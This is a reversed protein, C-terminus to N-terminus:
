GTLGGDRAPDSAARTPASSRYWQVFRGIGEHISMTPRYSLLRGAKRIDAWTARVDGPQPPMPQVRPTRGTAGGVLAVLEQLSVPSSNGLNVIEFPRELALAGVVGEVIDGIWTYDRRSSGDGYLPVERGELVLQTFRHIAMEPRQRPGYVTFFRLVCVPIEHVQHFAVCALEGARKSAGYPSVPRDARDTERFPVRSSDGYVSSSSAFVVREVGARAARALVVATGTVNVDYTRAPEAVSRRVGALAALHVLVQPCFRGFVRGVGAADRIDGEVFSFGRDRALLTLNARKVGVAYNPELNDLGVVERGAALLAECLHSGIFGAAGTVLIM